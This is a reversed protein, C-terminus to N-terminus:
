RAAPRRVLGLALAGVAALVAAAATANKAEGIREAVTALTDLRTPYDLVLTVIAINELYDCLLYAAPLALLVTRLVAPSGLRRTAYLLALASCLFTAFPLLVDGTATFLVQNRRGSPGWATMLAYAEDATYGPRNELANRAGALDLLGYGGTWGHFLTAFINAAVLCGLSVAFAIGVNRGTALRDLGKMTIPTEM